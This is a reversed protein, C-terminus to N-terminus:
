KIWGLGVLSGWLVSRSPWFCFAWEKQSYAKKQIMYFIRM